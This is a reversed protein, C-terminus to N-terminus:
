LDRPTGPGESQSRADFQRLLGRSAAEGPGPKRSHPSGIGLAFNAVQEWPRPHALWYHGGAGVLLILVVVILLTGFSM